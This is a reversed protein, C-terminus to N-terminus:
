QGLRPRMLDVVQQEANQDPQSSGQEQKPPKLEYVSWSESVTVETIQEFLADIAEMGLLQVRGQGNCRPCVFIQFQRNDPPGVERMVTTPCEVEFRFGQPVHHLLATRLHEDNIKRNERTTKRLDWSAAPKGEEDYQPPGIVRDPLALRQILPMMKVKVTEKRKEGASIQSQADRYQLALSNLEALDPPALNLSTAEPVEVKVTRYRTM